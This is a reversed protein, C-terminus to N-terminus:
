NTGTSTQSDPCWISLSLVHPVDHLAATLRQWSWFFPVLFLCFNLIQMLHASFSWPCFKLFESSIIKIKLLGWLILLLHRPLRTMTLLWCCFHWLHFSLHLCHDIYLLPAWVCILTLDFFIYHYFTIDKFHTQNLYSLKKLCKGWNNGVDRWVLIQSKIYNLNKFNLNWISFRFIFFDREDWTM